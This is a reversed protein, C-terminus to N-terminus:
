QRAFYWVSAHGYLLGMLWYPLTYSLAEMQSKTFYMAILFMIATALTCFLFVTLHGKLMSHQLCWKLLYLFPLAIAFSGISVIFGLPIIEAIKTFSAFPGFADCLVRATHVTNLVLLVLHWGVM